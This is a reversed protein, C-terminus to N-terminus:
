RSNKPLAACLAASYSEICRCRRRPPRPPKRPLGGTKYEFFPSSLICYPVMAPLCTELITNPQAPACIVFPSSTEGSSSAARSAPMLAKSVARMYPLLSSTRPRQSRPLGRSSSNMMVLPQWGVANPLRRMLGRQRRMSRSRERSVSPQSVMSKYKRCRSSGRMGTPSITCISFSTQPSRTRAKPADLQDVARM